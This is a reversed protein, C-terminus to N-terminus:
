RNKTTISKFNRTDFSDNLSLLMNNDEINEFFGTRSQCGDSFPSMVNQPISKLSAKQKVSTRINGLKKRM